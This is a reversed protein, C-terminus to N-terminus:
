NILFAAAADDDADVVVDDAAVDVVVQNVRIPGAVLFYTLFIPM